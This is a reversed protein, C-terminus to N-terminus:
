ATKIARPCAKSGHVLGGGEQRASLRPILNPQFHDELMCTITFVQGEIFKGTFSLMIYKVM